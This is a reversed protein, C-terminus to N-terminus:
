LLGISVESTISWNDFCYASPAILLFVYRSFLGNISLTSTSNLLISSSPLVTTSTSYYPLTLYIHLKYNIYLLNTPIPNPQPTTYIHLQYHNDTLHHSMTVCQLHIPSLQTVSTRRNYLYIAYPLRKYGYWYPIYQVVVGCGCLMRSSSSSSSCPTTHTHAQTHTHVPTYCLAVYWVM